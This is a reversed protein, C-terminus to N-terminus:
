WAEDAVTEQDIEPPAASTAEPMSGVYSVWPVCVTRTVPSSGSVSYVTESTAVLELPLVAVISKVNLVAIQGNTRCDGVATVSEPPVLAVTLTLSVRASVVPVSLRYAPLASTFVHSATATPM